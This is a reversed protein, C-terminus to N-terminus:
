GPGVVHWFNLVYNLVTALRILNDYVVRLATHFERVNREVRQLMGVWTTNGM